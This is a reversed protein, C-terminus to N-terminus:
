SIPRTKTFAFPGAQRLEDSSYGGSLLGVSLARCRAAAIMDWISDGIVVAGEIRADLREAAALFLDPDPKACRVHDRTIVPIKTPEVDLVALNVAATEMRGSTAIAWPIAAETSWALLKGPLPRIGSAHRQYAEPHARRLREIREPDIAVETERL